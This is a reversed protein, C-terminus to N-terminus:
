IVGLLQLFNLLLSVSAIVSVAIQWAKKSIETELSTIKRELEEVKSHSEANQMDLEDRLQSIANQVQESLLKHKEEYDVFAQRVDERLNSIYIM